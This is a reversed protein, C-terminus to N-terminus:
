RCIQFRGHRIGKETDAKWLYMGGALSRIDVTEQRTSSGEKELLCQGKMNYVQLKQIKEGAPFLLKIQNEGYLIRSPHFSEMKQKNERATGTRASDEAYVAFADVLSYLGNDKAVGRFVHPGFALGNMSFLIARPQRSQGEPLSLDVTAQFVDDMYLDMRGHGYCLESIMDLGTGTFSFEFQDGAALTWRVDDLYDGLGRDQSLIWNGTYKAAEQNYINSDTQLSDLYAKVEKIRDVQCQPILGTTDPSLDLLLNANRGNALLLTTALQETSKMKCATAPHYFWDGAANITGAIEAPLKNGDPPMGDSYWGMEFLVIETRDLAKLHNNEEILCNPQLSKVHDYISQYPVASYGVQWGWGDFWLLRIDGYQTLLETLQQKIFATDNGNTQDWISYYFGVEIGRSRASDVFERVVDGRGNKWSSNKVGYQSVASPWLCFGDCHKTTLVMYKMGAAKAADAWQGCDLKAPNFRSPSQGITAWEENTFTSMNFHLFMGYKMKLYETQLFDEPAGGSLSPFLASLFLPFFPRNKLIKNLM